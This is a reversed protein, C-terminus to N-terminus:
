KKLKKKQANIMKQAEEYTMWPIEKQQNLLDKEKELWQNQKIVVFSAIKHLISYCDTSNLEDNIETYLINHHQSFQVLEDTQVIRENSYTNGILMIIVDKRCSDRIQKLYIGCQDFSSKDNTNCFICIGMSGGLISNLSMQLPQQGNDWIQLRTCSTKNLHDINYNQFIMDLGLTAIYENYQKQKLKNLFYTKGTKQTGLMVVKLVYDYQDNM